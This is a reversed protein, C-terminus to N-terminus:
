KNYYSGKKVIMMSIVKLKVNNSERNLYAIGKREKFCMACCQMGEDSKIRACHVCTIRLIRISYNICICRLIFILKDFNQKNKVFLYSFLEIIIM